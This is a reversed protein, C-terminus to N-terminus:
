SKNIVDFFLTLYRTLKDFDEKDISNYDIDNDTFLTKISDEIYDQHKEDHNLLCKKFHCDNKLYYLLINVTQLNDLLGLFKKLEPNKTGAENMFNKFNNFKTDLWNSTTTNQQNSNIPQLFFSM